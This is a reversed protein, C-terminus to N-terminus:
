SIDNKGAGNPGFLVNINNMEMEVNALSRYNEVILKQLRSLM